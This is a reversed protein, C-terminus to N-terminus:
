AARFRAPLFIELWSSRPKSGILTPQSIDKEIHVFPKSRPLTPQISSKDRLARCERTADSILIRASQVELLSATVATMCDEILGISPMSRDLSGHLFAGLPIIGRLSPLPLDYAEVEGKVPIHIRLPTINEHAFLPKDSFTRNMCNEVVQAHMLYVSWAHTSLGNTADTQELYGTLLQFQQIIESLAKQQERVYDASKHLNDLIAEYRSRSSYVKHENLTIKNQAPFPSQVHVPHDFETRNLTTTETVPDDGFSSSNLPNNDRM